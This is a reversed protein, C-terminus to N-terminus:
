RPRGTPSRNRGPVSLKLQVRRRRLSVLAFALFGLTPAPSSQCGCGTASPLPGPALPLARAGADRPSPEVFGGDSCPVAAPCVETGTCRRPACDNESGGCVKMVDGRIPGCTGDISAGAAVSCALCDDDGAGCTTQCCVGDACFGSRCQLESACRAGAERLPEYQVLGGNSAWGFLDGRHETTWTGRGAQGDVDNWRQRAWEVVREGNSAVLVGRRSDSVLTFAGGDPFPRPAATTVEGTMPNWHRLEDPSLLLLMTAAGTALRVDASPLPQASAPGADAPWEIVSAGGELELWLSNTARTTAMASIRPLTATARWAAGDDFWAATGGDAPVLALLGTRHAAFSPTPFPLRETRRWGGAQPTWVSGGAFTLWVFGDFVLPGRDEVANLSRWSTSLALTDDLVGLSNAGGFTVIGLTPHGAIAMRYWDAPADQLRSWGTADLAWTDRFIRMPNTAPGMPAWGGTTVLRRGVPDWAFGMSARPPPPNAPTLQRWRVGNWSWTDNLAPSGGRWGGFVVVEGLVEDFAMGHADRPSPRVPPFRQTWGTGDWEWTDDFQLGGVSPGSLGGFLVARQRLPDWALGHSWRAAPRNPTTRQTWGGDLFEWTDDLFSVEGSGGFLVMSRRAADWVMAGRVRGPPSPLELTRWGADREWAWTGASALGGVRLLEQRDPHWAMSAGWTGFATAESPPGDALVRTLAVEVRVTAPPVLAEVTLTSGNWRLEGVTSLRFVPRSEFWVELAAPTSVTTARRDLSLDLAFRTAEVRLEIATTSPSHVVLDSSGVAASFTLVGADLAGPISAATAVRAQLRGDLRASDMFVFPGDAREPAHVDLVRRRVELLSSEPTRFGADTRELQGGVLHLFVLAPMM